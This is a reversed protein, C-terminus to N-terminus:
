RQQSRGRRPLSGGAGAMVVLVGCRGLDGHARQPEAETPQPPPLRRLEGRALGPCPLGGQMEALSIPSAHSSAKSPPPSNASGCSNSAGAWTLSPPPTGPMANWTAPSRASGTIPTPHPCVPVAAGTGTGYAGTSSSQWGMSPLVLDPNGPLRDHLRFRFGAAHLTKRVYMEPATDTSRVQRMIRSRESSSVTDPSM